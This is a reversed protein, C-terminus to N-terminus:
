SLCEASSPHHHRAFFFYLQSFNRLSCIHSKKMLKFIFHLTHPTTNQMRSVHITLIMIKRKENVGMTERMKYTSSMLGHPNNPPHFQPHTERLPDHFPSSHSLTFYFSFSPFTRRRLSLMIARATSIVITSNYILSLLELPNHLCAYM